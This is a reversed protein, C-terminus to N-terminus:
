EQRFLERFAVPIFPIMDSALTGRGQIEFAKRNISRGLHAAAGAAALTVFKSEKDHSKWFLFTALMGSMLDGQGGCRRPSGMKECIYIENGNTIIDKETKHLITVNGLKTALEVAQEQSAPLASDSTSVVAQYLRSFEIANPTLVINKCGHIIKPNNNIFFLGDADIVMPIELKKGMEIIAELKEFTAPERGLGPGLVLSHIRPLWQSIEQMANPADLLPHVILEPSYSKIVPAAEKRCFVHVLDCGARLASIAAFYPAGTYELSGGVVGIRGSEGKHLSNTLAPISKKMESIVMEKTLIQLSSMEFKNLSISSLHLHVFSNRFRM